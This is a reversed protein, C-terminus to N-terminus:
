CEKGVRREESRFKDNAETIGKVMNKFIDLSASGRQANQKTENLTINLKKLINEAREVDNLDKFEGSIISKLNIM